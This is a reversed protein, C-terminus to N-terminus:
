KFEPSRRGLFAAFGEAFDVGGFAEAFLRRSEEDDDLAGRLVKGVVTKTARASYRATNSLAHAFSSVERVLADAACVRDVLGWGLATEADVMRATLLMEKARSAGIAAVLRRTDAAGYALGLKAPTIAFRADNAAWRMDCALALGCGGGVCSGEILALSPLPSAELVRMAIQMTEQNALAAEATRYFEAFEAIDAGAAFYGGSGRIVLLRVKPTKEAEAVLRPIAAWMALTLANCKEPRNLMLEAYADRVQLEIDPM